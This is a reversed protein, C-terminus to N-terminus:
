RDHKACLLRPGSRPMQLTATMITLATRFTPATMIIAMVSVSAEHALEAGEVAGNGVEDLATAASMWLAKRTDSDVM